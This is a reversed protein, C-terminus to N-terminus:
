HRGNGRAVGGAPDQEVVHAEQEAAVVPEAEGDDLEQEAEREGDVVVPLAQRAVNLPPAPGNTAEIAPPRLAVPQRDCRLRAPTTAGPVAGGVVDLELDDPEVYLLREEARALQPKEGAADEAEVGGALGKTADKEATAVADGEQTLRLLLSGLSDVHAARKLEPAGVEGDDEDQAEERDPDEADDVVV